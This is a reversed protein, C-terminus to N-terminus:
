SYKKLRNYYMQFNSPEAFEYANKLYELGGNSFYQTAAATGKQNEFEKDVEYVSLSKAGAEYMGRIVLFCARDVKAEVFDYPNIDPYEIFLLLNHMLSGVIQRYATKDSLTM